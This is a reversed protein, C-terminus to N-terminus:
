QKSRLYKVLTTRGAGQQTEFLIRDVCNLLQMSDLGRPEAAAEPAPAAFTELGVVPTLLGRRSIHIEIRDPFTEVDIELGADGACDQSLAERCVAECARAFADSSSSDLGAQLSQFQVTAGIAPVLRPDGDLHLMVRNPDTPM